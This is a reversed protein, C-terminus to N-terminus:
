AGGKRALAPRLHNGLAGALNDYQIESFPADCATVISCLRYAAIDLTWDEPIEGVDKLRQVIANCLSEKLGLLKLAGGRHDTQKWGNREAMDKLAEILPASHSQKAWILRDCKLQGCAFTEFAKESPNHVVGLHYLSIWMARGKRALKHQAAGKIGSKPRDQWGKAKMAEVMVAMQDDSCDKLSIKGTTDFLLQRYGDEDLGQRELDKKAVFIKSRLIDRRKKPRDFRAPVARNHSANAM